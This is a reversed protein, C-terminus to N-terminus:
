MNLAHIQVNDPTGFKGAFTEIFLDVGFTHYRFWGNMVKIFADKGYHEAIQKSPLRLGYVLYQMYHAFWEREDLAYSEGPKVEYKDAFKEFDEQWRTWHFTSIKHTSDSEIQAKTKSLAFNYWYDIFDINESLSAAWDGLKLVAGFNFKSSPKYLSKDSQICWDM